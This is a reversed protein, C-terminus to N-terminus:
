LEYREKVFVFFVVCFGYSVGVLAAMGYEVYIPVDLEKLDVDDNEDSASSAELQLLMSTVVLGSGIKERLVREGLDFSWFGALGRLYYDETVVKCFLFVGLWFTIKAIKRIKKSTSDYNILNVVFACGYLPIWFYWDQDNFQVSASYAFLFAMLVSCSAFLKSTRGMKM